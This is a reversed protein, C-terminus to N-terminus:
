PRADVIGGPQGVELLAARVEDNAEAFPPLDPFIRGFEISSSPAGKTRAYSGPSIAPPTEAGATPPATLGGAAVLGAGAAGMGKLFDRRSSARERKLSTVKSGRM